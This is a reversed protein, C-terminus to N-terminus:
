APDGQRHWAQEVRQRESFKDEVPPEDEPEDDLHCKSVERGTTDAKREEEEARLLCDGLTADLIRSVQAVEHPTAERLHLFDEEVGLSPLAQCLYVDKGSLTCLYNWAAKAM